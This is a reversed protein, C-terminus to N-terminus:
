ATVTEPTEAAVAEGNAEHAAEVSGAESAKPTNIAGLTGLLADLDLNPDDQLMAARLEAMKQQMKLLKKASSKDKVNGVLKLGAAAERFKKAKSEFEDAKLNYYYGEDAFNKRTLPKHTKRNFDSPFETFKGDGNVYSAGEPAVFDIKTVKAANAKRGRKAGVNAANPAASSKVNDKAM